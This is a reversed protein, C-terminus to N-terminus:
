NSSRKLFSFISGSKKQERKQLYRGLSEPTNHSTLVSSDFQTGLANGLTTVLEMHDLSDLGLEYFTKQPSFTEGNGEMLCQVTDDVLTRATHSLVPEAAVSNDDVADNALQDSPVVKKVGAKLSSQQTVFQMLEDHMEKRAIGDGLLIAKIQVVDGTPDHLRSSSDKTRICIAAALISGDQEVVYTNAPDQELCVEITDDTIPKSSGGLAAIVNIDRPDGNRITYNRPEFWSLTIRCFPLTKPYRRFYDPKAFLGVEAACMTFVDADVLYQMSYAHYADFHLSEGQDLVNRAVSPRVCHVELIILGHRTTVSRWRGLHEVLSQVAVAPEIASGNSDVYVGQYDIRRRRAVAASDSPEVFPRDHDLFSRIHLISESDEIGQRRLDCALQDPDGIDGKTVLHPIEGLTEDTAELAKDNFDVGIMRVVRETVARGRATKEAIVRHVRKLFTGDGCGMDAVFDPQQDLPQDFISVIIDEVDAFYKEHQFGSAVVNLTREVHTEHGAQDRGFVNSPNGALLEPLQSLMPTYSCLTGLILARQSVFGGLDTLVLGHEAQTAWGLGKLLSAVKERVPEPSAAFSLEDGADAALWNLQNLATLLPVAFFGDLLKATDKSSVNWSNEIRDVWNPLTGFHRSSPQLKGILYQDVPFQLWDIADGPIELYRNEDVHISYSGSEDRDLWGLTELLRLAAALHGTNGSIKHALEDVRLSGNTHLADLVGTQRCALITPIAVFGHGYGNLIDLM